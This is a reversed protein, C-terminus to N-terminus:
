AVVYPEATQLRPTSNESPVKKANDAWVESDGFNCRGDLGGGEEGRLGLNQSSQGIEIFDRCELDIIIWPVGFM